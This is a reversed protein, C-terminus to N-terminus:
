PDGALGFPHVVNPEPPVDSAQAGSPDDMNAKQGNPSEKFSVRDSPLENGSQEWQCCHRIMAPKCNSYGLMIYM